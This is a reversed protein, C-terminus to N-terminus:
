LHDCIFILALLYIKIPHNLPIYELLITISTILVIELKRLFRLIFLKGGGLFKATITKQEITKIKSTPKAKIQM